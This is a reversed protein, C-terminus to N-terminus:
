TRERGATILGKGGNKSPDDLAKERKERISALETQRELDRLLASKEAQRALIETESLPVEDVVVDSNLMQDAQELSKTPAIPNVEVTGFAALFEEAEQNSQLRTIHERAQHALALYHAEVATLKEITTMNKNKNLKSLIWKFM